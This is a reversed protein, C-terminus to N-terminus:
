NKIYYNKIKKFLKYLSIKLGLKLPYKLPLESNNIL